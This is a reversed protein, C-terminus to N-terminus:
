DEAKIYLGCHCMGDKQELFEKCICKTDESKTLRCPCYGGNAKLKERILAVLEKDTNVTIKMKVFGKQM